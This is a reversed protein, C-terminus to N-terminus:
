KGDKTPAKAAKAPKAETWTDQELLRRAISDEVEVPEGRYAVIGAEPVDVDALPGGYILQM